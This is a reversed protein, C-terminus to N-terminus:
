GDKNQLLVKKADSRKIEIGNCFYRGLAFFFDSLRNMFKFTNSGTPFVINNERCQKLLKWMHREARRCVSRCVNIEADIQSFGPLIFETLKPSQASFNDIHSELEKVDNESIEVVRDRNKVTAVDSGIDLLQSQIKRLIWFDFTKIRAPFADGAHTCVLGIFNSLEDLDGLVEFYLEDKGLKRMDYLNTFGADGTKTYLSM